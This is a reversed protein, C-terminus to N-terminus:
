HSNSGDGDRARAVANMQKDWSNSLAMLAAVIVPDTCASPPGAMQCRQNENITAVVMTPGEDRGRMACSSSLDPPAHRMIATSTTPDPNAQQKPSAQAQPLLKAAALEECLKTEAAALEDLRAKQAMERARRAAKAARGALKAAAAEQVDQETARGAAAAARGALMAAAAEQGDQETAHGAAAAAHAALMAAAAEPNDQELWTPEEERRPDVMNHMNQTLWHEVFPGFVVDKNPLISRRDNDQGLHEIATRYRCRCIEVANMHEEIQRQVDECMDRNYTKHSKELTRVDSEAIVGQITTKYCAVCTKARRGFTGPAPLTLVTTATTQFYVAPHPERPARCWGPYSELRVERGPHVGPRQRGAAARQTERRSGKVGSITTTKSWTRSRSMRM